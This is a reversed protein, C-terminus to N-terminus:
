MSIWKSKREECLSPHSIPQYAHLSHFSRGIAQFHHLEGRLISENVKGKKLEAKINNPEPSKGNKM